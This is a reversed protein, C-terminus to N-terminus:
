PDVPAIHPGVLIDIERIHPLQDIWTSPDDFNYAACEPVVGAHGEPVWENCQGVVEELNLIRRKHTRNIFAVQPPLCAYAPLM